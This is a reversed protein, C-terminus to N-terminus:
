TLHQRRRRLHDAQQRADAQRQARDSAAADRDARDAQQCYPSCYGAFTRNNVTIDDDCRVCVPSM